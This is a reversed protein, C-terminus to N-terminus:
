APLPRPQSHTEGALKGDGAVPWGSVYIGKAGAKVMQVSQAGTIAGLTPLYTETHLLEWLREARHRSLSDEIPLSGRLRAVDEETWDRRTGTWRPQGNLKSM